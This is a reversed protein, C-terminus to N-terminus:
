RKYTDLGPRITKEDLFQHMGELRGKEHDLFQSQDLKAYLYDEAQEWPMLRSKRFGIKAARLVVPNKAKLVDALDTVTKRLESRPVASNVLRMEAAKRGDFTEGTMIYYLADRTSITEALARSVVSGPPIGWNIESLGFVADEAAIALDCGVLPTFAGGFCWGNVMAITPKSYNALHKWQWEAAVRRVRIQVSPHADDVDRFYEKLDMGASFAEGVGTLVVVQADDDAELRELADAMDENLAPSMANRKEPRNLAVWAIGDAIEIHVNDYQHEAVDGGTDLRNIGPFM